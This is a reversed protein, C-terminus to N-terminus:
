FLSARLVGRNQREGVDPCEPISRTSRNAVDFIVIRPFSVIRVTRTKTLAEGVDDGRGHDLAVGGTRDLLKEDVVSEHLPTEHM